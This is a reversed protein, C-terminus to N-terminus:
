ISSTKNSQAPERIKHLVEQCSDNYQNIWTMLITTGIVLIPSFPKGLSGTGARTWCWVSFVRGHVLTSSVNRMKMPVASDTGLSM